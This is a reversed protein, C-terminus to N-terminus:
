FEKLINILYPLVFIYVTDCLDLLKQNVDLIMSSRVQRFLDWSNLSKHLKVILEYQTLMQVLLNQAKVKYQKKWPKNLLNNYHEGISSWYECWVRVAYEREKLTVFVSNADTDTSSIPDLCLDSDTEFFNM